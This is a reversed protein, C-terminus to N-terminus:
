EGARVLSEFSSCIERPTESDANVDVHSLPWIVVSRTLAQGVEGVVRPKENMAAM